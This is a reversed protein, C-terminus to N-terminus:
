VQLSLQISEPLQLLTLKGTYTFNINFIARWENRQRAMFEEFNQSLNQVSKGIQSIKLQVQTLMLMASQLENLTEAIAGRYQNEFEDINM